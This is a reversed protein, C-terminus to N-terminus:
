VMTMACWVRKSSLWLGVQLLNDDLVLEDDAELDIAECRRGDDEVPPLDPLVLDDIHTTDIVIPKSMEEDDDDDDDFLPRRDLQNSSLVELVDSYFEDSPLSPYMQPIVNPLDGTLELETEPLQSRVFEFSSMCNTYVVPMSLASQGTSETLVPQGTSGTLVPQGASGTSETLSEILRDALLDQEDLGYGVSLDKMMTQRLIQMGEETSLATQICHMDEDTIVSFPNKEPQFTVFVCCTLVLFKKNAVKLM